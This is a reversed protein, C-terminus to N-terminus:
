LPPIDCSLAMRNIWYMFRATRKFGKSYLNIYAHIFKIFLGEKVTEM